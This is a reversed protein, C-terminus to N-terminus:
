PQIYTFNSNPRLGSQSYLGLGIVIDNNKRPMNSCFIPSSKENKM